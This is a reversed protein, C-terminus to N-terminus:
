GRRAACSAPRPARAACSTRARDLDIRPRRRLPRARRRGRVACRAPRAAPDRELPRHEARRETVLDRRDGADGLLAPGGRPAPVPRGGADAISARRSSGDSRRAHVFRRLDGPGDPRDLLQPGRDAARDASGDALLGRVHRPREPRRRTADARADALAERRRRWGSRPAGRRRGGRSARDAEGLERLLQDPEEAWSPVASTTSPEPRPPRARRPLRRPGDAFPAASPGAEELDAVTISGDVIARRWRRRRPRRAGGAVRAPARRRAARPRRGGILALAEGPPAGEVISEYLDALDDLVQYPGASRTSTSRGAAARDAAVGRGLDSPWRDARWDDRGAAGAIWEYIGGFSPSRRTRALVRRDVPIHARRTQTRRELTAPKSRRPVNVRCARLVRLREVGAARSRSRSRAAPLRVRLGVGADPHLRGALPTMADAHAHRGMGVDARRRAPRGLRRPLRRAATSQHAAM